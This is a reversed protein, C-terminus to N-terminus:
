DLGGGVRGGPSGQSPVGPRRGGASESVEEERGRGSGRPGPSASLASIAERGEGAGEWKLPPPAAAWSLERPFSKWAGQRRAAGPLRPRRRGSRTGLQLCLARM